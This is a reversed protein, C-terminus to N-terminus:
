LPIDPNNAFFTETLWLISETTEIGLGLYITFQFPLAIASEEFMNELAIANSQSDGMSIYPIYHRDFLETM